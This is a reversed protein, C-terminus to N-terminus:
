TGEPAVARARRVLRAIRRRSPGFWRKPNRRSFAVVVATIPGPPVYLPKVVERTDSKARMRVLLGVKDPPGEGVETVDESTISRLDPARARLLWSLAMLAAARDDGKEVLSEVMGKVEPTTLPRAGQPAILVGLRRLARINMRLYKVEAESIMMQDRLVKVLAEAYNAASRPAAKGGEGM